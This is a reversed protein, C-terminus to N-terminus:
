RNIIGGTAFVPNTYNLIHTLILTHAELEPVMSDHKTHLIEEEVVVEVAWKRWEMGGSPNKEEEEEKLAAAARQQLM